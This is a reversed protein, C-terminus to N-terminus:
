TGFFENWKGILTAANVSLLAEIKGLQTASFGFNEENRVPDLWFKASKAGSDVHVHPPEGMDHSTFYVRYGGLRLVTPVM